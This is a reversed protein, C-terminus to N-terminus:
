NHSTLEFCSLIDNCQLHGSYLSLTVCPITILNCFTDSTNENIERRLLKLFYVTYLAQILPIVLVYKWVKAEAAAELLM